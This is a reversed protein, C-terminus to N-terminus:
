KQNLGAIVAACKSNVIFMGCNFETKVMEIITPDDEFVFDGAGIGLKKFVDRKYYVAKRHDDDPRMILEDYPIANLMLWHETPIRAVESRGTVVAVKKAFRLLAYFVDRTCEIVADQGCAMNFTVWESTHNGEGTPLLHQRHTNDAMTGDLDLVLIM